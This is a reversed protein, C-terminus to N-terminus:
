VGALIIRVTVYGDKLYAVLCVIYNYEGGMLYTSLCPTGLEEGFEESGDRVTSLQIINEPLASYVESLANTGTTTFDNSGLLSFRIDAILAALGSWDYNFYNENLTPNQINLNILTSRMIEHLDAAKDMYVDLWFTGNGDVSVEEGDSAYIDVQITVSEDPVDFQQKFCYGITGEVAGGSWSSDFKSAYGKIDKATVTAGTVSLCDYEEDYFIDENGEIYYYPLEIVSSFAGFFEDITAQETKSWNSKTQSCSVLSLLTVGLLLLASKKKM